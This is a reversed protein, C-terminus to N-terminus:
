SEIAIKRTKVEERKPITVELVGHEVRAKIGESNVDNSLTFNRRYKGVGYERGVLEYGAPAEVRARGEVTLVNNEVTVEVDKGDVGPMDARLRICDENESIDVDPVYATDTEPSAAALM